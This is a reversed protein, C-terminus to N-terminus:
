SAVAIAHLNDEMVTKTCPTGAEPFLPSLARHLQRAGAHAAPSPGWYFCLTEFCSNLTQLSPARGPHPHRERHLRRAGARALRASGRHLLKGVPGTCAAADARAGPDRQRDHQGGAGSCAGPVVTLGHWTIRHIILRRRPNRQQGHQHGIGSGRAGLPGELVGHSGILSRGVLDELPTTGPM